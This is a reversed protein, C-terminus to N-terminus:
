KIAVAFQTIDCINRSIGLFKVSGEGGHLKRGPFEYLLLNWVIGSFIGNGNVSLTHSYIKLICKNCIFIVFNDHM